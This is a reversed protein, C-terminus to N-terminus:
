ELLCPASVTISLWESQILLPFLYIGRLWLWRKKKRATYLVPALSTFLSNGKQSVPSERHESPKCMDANWHHAHEMLYLTYNWLLLYHQSVSVSRLSVKVNRSWARLQLVSERSFCSSRATSATQTKFNFGWRWGTSTMEAHCISNKYKTILSM